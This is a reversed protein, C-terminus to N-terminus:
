KISDLLEMVVRYGANKLDTYGGLQKNAVLLDTVATLLLAKEEPSMASIPKAEESM